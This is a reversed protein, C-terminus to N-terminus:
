RSQLAGRETITNPGGQGLRDPIKRPSNRRRFGHPMRWLDEVIRYEQAAEAPLDYRKASAILGAILASDKAEHACLLAQVFLDGLLQRTLQSLEQCGVMTSDSPIALTAIAAKAMAAAALFTEVAENTLGREQLVAARASLCRSHSLELTATQCHRQNTKM